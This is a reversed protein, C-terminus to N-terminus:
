AFHKEKWDTWFPFNWVGMKKFLAFSRLKRDQAKNSRHLHSFGCFCWMRSTYQQVLSSRDFRCLMVIKEVFTSSLPNRDKEYYKPYKVKQQEENSVAIKHVAKWKEKPWSSLWQYHSHPSQDKRVASAGLEVHPGPVHTCLSIKYCTCLWLSAWINAACTLSHMQFCSPYVWQQFFVATNPVFM